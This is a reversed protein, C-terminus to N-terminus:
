LQEKDKPTVSGQSLRKGDLSYDSYDEVFEYEDFEEELTKQRPPSPPVIKKHVIVVNNTRKRKYAPDNHSLLYEIARMDKDKVKLMLAHKAIDCSNEKGRRIAQSAQKKFVKDSDLWRYHTSRDIGVKLCALYVNGTKELEKLLKQKTKDDIM